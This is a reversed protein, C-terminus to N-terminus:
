VMWSFPTPIEQDTPRWLHLCHPHHNIHKKPPVHLQMATEGDKFFLRKIFDMENWTPTSNSKSVSVHDWGVGTSAIVRLKGIGYPSPVEFAGGEHDGGAEQLRYKNIRHESLNHMM